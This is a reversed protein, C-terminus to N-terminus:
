AKQTIQVKLNNHSIVAETAGNATDPNKDGCAEGDGSRVTCSALGEKYFFHNEKKM